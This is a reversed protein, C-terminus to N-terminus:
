TTTFACIDTSKQTTHDLSVAEVREEIVEVSEPGSQGGSLADDFAEAWRGNPHAHGITIGDKPQEWRGKAPAARKGFARELGHLREPCRPDSARAHEADGLGARLGRTPRAHEDALMENANRERRQCARPHEAIGFLATAAAQGGGVSQARKMLRTPNM